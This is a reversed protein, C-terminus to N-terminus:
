FFTTQGCDEKRTKTPRKQSALVRHAAALAEMPDPGAPARGIAGKLLALDISDRLSKQRYYLEEGNHVFWLRVCQQLYGPFYEIKALDGHTAIGEVIERMIERYRAVSLSVGRQKFWTAPWTLTMMLPKQDQGWRKAGKGQYFRRGIEALLEAVMGDPSEVAAVGDRKAQHAAASADRERQDLYDELM